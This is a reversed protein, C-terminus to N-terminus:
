TGHQEYWGKLLATDLDPPKKILKQAPVFDIIKRLEVVEENDKLWKQDAILWQM